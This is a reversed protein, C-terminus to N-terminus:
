LAVFEDIQREIMKLSSRWFEISHIDIGMMKTIDAIKNKGTVSLLKDYDQVFAEGKKEYEAYLGKAFLLGFAYPFNYFNVDASYYHSKCVWMYPHLYKEDLGDGYTQKQANLMIENFENVSLSSQERRKFVDTEFIYRSLIDVVVQASDSIESELMMLAQEKTASKLAANKIITENFISATEAIPMPYESNLATEDNLNHGHYGHGLEHALTVVDSFTGSFNTLVRSEKIKHLNCCFAGGVKGEKPEVDVWRNEIANKVYDALKTSFTKFNKVIFDKAEDYTFKMEANGIPAFLDYFPLGNKHGLLEAKKRFYKRFAPLSEQIATIMADLSERDMRSILLAEDLPSKYGRMKSVTLVEGKIGNLSAASAEAIKEYSKLEAEYANKRVKEDSDYAMNRVTSLPLKKMEGDIEIDVLLTSTMLDHLKGWASSGTNKMKAIVIEEKEDLLYKSNELAEHIYFEHQKLLPSKCIIENLKGSKNIESIYKQFRVLIETLEPLKGELVEVNHLAKEDKSNVSLQLESYSMLNSILDHIYNMKTIFEEIKKISDNCNNLNEKTWLNLDKLGNDFSLFDKKFEDSEFSTYLEDLSWNLDM